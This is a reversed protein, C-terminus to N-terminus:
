NFANSISDAYSSLGGLMADVIATNVDIKWNDDVLSLPIDVSTTVTNDQNEDIAKILKDMYLQSLEEESPQQDEPLFAYEFAASLMERISQAMVQSMDINTFNVTVTATGAAEDEESGTIEYTLHKCIAALVQQSQVLADESDEGVEFSTDGWYSQIAAQDASQFAKIAKDVVTEASERSKGCSVLSLCMAAALIVSWFKKM